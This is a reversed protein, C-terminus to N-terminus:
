LGGHRARQRPRLGIPAAALAKHMYAYISEDELGLILAHDAYAAMGKLGYIVLERMSKIDLDAHVNAISCGEAQNVMGTTEAALAFSAAAPIAGSFPGALAQAKSRLAAGKRLIKAIAEADFDVNTVTTFLGELLFRDIEADKAGNKRALNGWFGIGKLQHVLLDQLAAVDPQKGCVGIKTCGSGQATQECQYCFM